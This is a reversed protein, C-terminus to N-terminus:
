AMARQQRAQWRSSRWTAPDIRHTPDETCVLDPLTAYTTTGPVAVGYLTGPCPVREGTESTAHETCPLGTEVRRAGSPYAVRRGARAHDHADDLVSQALGEDPHSTLYGLHWAAAWRLLEPTESSPPTADRENVLIRALFLAYQRISAMADSARENIALGQSGMGRTQKGQEDRALPNVEPRTLAATLDPWMGAMELLRDRVKDICRPCFWARETQRPGGHEAPRCHANVCLVPFETM